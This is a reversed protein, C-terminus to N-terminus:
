APSPRKRGGPNCRAPPSRGTVDGQALADQRLACAGARGDGVDEAAFEVLAEGAQGLAEIAGVRSIGVVQGEGAVVAGADAEQQAADAHDEGAFAEGLVGGLGVDHAAAAALFDGADGDVGPGRQASGVAPLQPRYKVIGRPV